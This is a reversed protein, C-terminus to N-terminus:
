SRLALFNTAEGKYTRFLLRAKPRATAEALKHGKMEAWTLMAREVEAQSAPKFDGQHILGWLEYCMEDWWPQPLRGSGATPAAAEDPTLPDTPTPLLSRLSDALFHM